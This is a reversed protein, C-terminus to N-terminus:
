KSILFDYELDQNTRFAETTKEQRSWVDYRYRLVASAKNHMRKALNVREIM